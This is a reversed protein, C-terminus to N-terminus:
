FLEDKSSSSTRKPTRFAEATAQVGKIFPLPFTVRLKKIFFTLFIETTNKKKM